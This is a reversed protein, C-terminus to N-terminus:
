LAEPVLVTKGSRLTLHNTHDFGLSRATEAALDFGATLESARHADSNILIEGGLERLRRLLTIGPYLKGRASQRTNIEFPKGRSVLYEMAELAPGLYRPDEEDVFHLADNFKTVLDFHGIFDCPFRDAIQAELRFYARCLRYFDGGYFENCLLRLEDATNDVSLPREYEVDMFHTSGIVYDLGRACGPDYLNDLEVGCLIEIRGGYLDRLADIEARYRELDMHIDADMHGSFGLRKLGHALASEVMARPTDAGDCLNTHTHFNGTLAM